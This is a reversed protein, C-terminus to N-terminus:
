KLGLQVPLSAAWDSISGWDRNDMVSKGYARHGPVSAMMQHDFKLNRPDYSGVFMQVAVPEFWPYKTLNEDLQKLTNEMEKED